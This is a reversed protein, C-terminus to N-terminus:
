QSTRETEDDKRHLWAHARLALELSLRNEPTLCHNGLLKEIKDLRQYLTQRRIFLKGAAEQKSLNGELFVRLTLLLQSGSKADYNLLPGLYDEIFSELTKRDSQLLLRYVGLDEFFPSTFKAAFALVQEAEAFAQGAHTYDSSANSVGLRLRVDPPLARRATEVMGNLAKELSLRGNEHPSPRKGPASGAEVLLFYLRHSRSSFLCRFSQRTLLFRFIPLQDHFPSDTENTTPLRDEDSRAELIAARYRPRRSSRSQLGLIARLQDETGPRNQLIDELLRNENDLSREQAFMRRLLIQAMAIGTYDLILNLVGDPQNERFVLGLYALVQGMAMVPQYLLYELGDLPLCGGSEPLPNLSLLSTHLLATLEAQVSQSINPSFLPPGQLSLFFTQAQVMTQFHGLIRPFSQTQLTLRQLDRAYRELSKLAQTQCNVLNEHLDLTIDVFRVSQHFVILPFEHRDALERMDQPIEGIYPGLELCLGVAQRQIVENLYALRAATSGGFGVGTSLLLEGGNLFSANEASELVHVWRIPRTLGRSGAIVEAHEFLPRKLADAITLLPEKNM